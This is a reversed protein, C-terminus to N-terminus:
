PTTLINIDRAKKYKVGDSGKAEIVVFYVGPTVFKGNYKGDWGKSPDTWEYLKNGWRNFITAKFSVLSKYAVKYEDNEGESANPTFYNPLDLFSESISFEVSASDQCSSTSNTTVLYVIYDGADNFTYNITKDNYRAIWNKLDTKKYITWAYYSAVPENSYGKFAIEAPASGGLDTTESSGVENDAGHATQSAGIYTETFKEEYVGSSVTQSIGLYEAIKDGTLTFRTDKLPADVVLSTRVTQWDSTLSSSIFTSSTADWTQKDYSLKYQMNLSYEVGGVGYYSIKDSKDISLTVSKSSCDDSAKATISNLEPLHKSYDIMWLTSKLVGDEEVLYGSADEPSTISYTSTSGNNTVNVLSESVETKGALSQKYSHWNVTKGNDATYSITVGNLGNAIYVAQIGSSASVSYTYVTGDVSYQAFSNTFQWLFLLLGLTRKM